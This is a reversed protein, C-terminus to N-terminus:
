GSEKETEVVEGERMGEVGKERERGRERIRDM